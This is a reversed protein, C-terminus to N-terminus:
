AWNYLPSAKSPWHDHVFICAVSFFNMQSNTAPSWEAGLLDVRTCLQVGKLNGQLRYLGLHLWQVSGPVLQGLATGNM